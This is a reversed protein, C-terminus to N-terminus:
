PMCSNVRWLLTSQVLVHVAICISQLIAWTDPVAARPNAPTVGPTLQVM